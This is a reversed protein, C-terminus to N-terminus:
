CPSFRACVALAEVAAPAGGDRLAVCLGFTTGQPEYWRCRDCAAGGPLVRLRTEEPRLPRAPRLLPTEAGPAGPLHRVCHMKGTVELEPAHLACSQSFAWFACNDCNRPATAPAHQIDPGSFLAEQPTPLPATADRLPPADAGSWIMLKRVEM